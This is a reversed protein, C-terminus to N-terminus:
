VKRNKLDDKSLGLNNLISNDYHGKDSCKEQTPIKTNTVYKRYEDVSMGLMDACYKEDALFEKKNLM